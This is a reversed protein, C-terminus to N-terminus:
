ARRLTRTSIQYQFIINPTRACASKSLKDTKTKKSKRISSLASIHASKLASPLSLAPTITPLLPVRSRSPQSCHWTIGHVHTSRVTGLFGHDKGNWLDLTGKKLSDRTCLTKHTLNLVSTLRPMHVEECTYSHQPFADRM